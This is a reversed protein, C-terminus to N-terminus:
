KTNKEIVAVFDSWSLSLSRTRVSMFRVVNDNFFKQMLLGIEDDWIVHDSMAKIHFMPDFEENDFEDIDCCLSEYENAPVFGILVCFQDILNDIIADYNEVKM